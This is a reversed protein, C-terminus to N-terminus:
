RRSAQFESGGSTKRSAQVTKERLAAKKRSLDRIIRAVYVRTEQYPPVGQYQEVREPGANYAALALPLDNHYRMLLQGLYLTGGEVNDAPDFANQVGLRAATEPMLQMLGQAGKRSIANPNFGSEARIVSFILDPDVNNRSSAASVMADLDMAPSPDPVPVPVPAPALRQIVEEFSSIESTPVDVYNETAQSLYLRTVTDRVEHREHRIAFGNRLTAMEAASTSLCAVALLITAIGFKLGLKLQIFHKPARISPRGTSSAEGSFSSFFLPLLPDM